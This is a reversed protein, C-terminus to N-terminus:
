QVLKKRSDIRFEQNQLKFGRWSEVEFGHLIESLTDSSDGVKSAEVLYQDIKQKAVLIGHEKSFHHPRLM